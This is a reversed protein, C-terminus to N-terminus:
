GRRGGHPPGRDAARGRRRAVPAGRRRVGGGAMRRVPREAASAPSTAEGPPGPGPSSALARAQEIWSEIASRAVGHVGAARLREALDDATLAALDAPSAIGLGQLQRARATKIGTIATLDGGTM